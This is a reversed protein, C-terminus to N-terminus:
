TRDHSGSRQRGLFTAIIEPDNRLDDASGTMTIHGNAVVYARDAISLAHAALQEVLLDNLGAENLTKLVDMLQEVIKPALGLSLEDIMLLKPSSLLGRGIALMQQEGGSLSGAMQDRREKLRPFLELVRALDAEVERRSTRWRQYAGLVLNDEVSQDAFIMRGEPIMVLGQGVRRHPPMQTVDRGEFVIQGHAPKVLGSLGRLISTKGAGNNGIIAVLEGAGIELSADHVATAAGYRIALNTVSLVPPSPIMM